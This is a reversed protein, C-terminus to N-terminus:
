KKNQKDKKDLDLYINKVLTIVNWVSGILFLIGFIWGLVKFDYVHGTFNNIFVIVLLGGFGFIAAFKQVINLNSPNSNM